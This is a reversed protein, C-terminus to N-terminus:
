KATTIRYATRREGNPNSLRIKKINESVSHKLCSMSITAKDKLFFIVESDEKNYKHLNFKTDIINGGFIFFSVAFLASFIM